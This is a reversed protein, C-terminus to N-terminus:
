IYLDKPFDDPIPACFEVIKKTEPHPFKLKYAHLLTRQHAEAGYTSDGSIPFGMESLHVRIQHLRGTEPTAEVLSYGNSHSVKKFKTKASKGGNSVRLMKMKDKPDRDLFNTVLRDQFKDESDQVVALYTKTIIKKEFLETFYKNHSKKKCFLLLGSTEFDIRHHLALYKEKHKGSIYRTMASLFNDRTSQLTANSSINAPKNGVLFIVEDHVVMSETIKITEKIPLSWSRLQAKTLSVSYFEDEKLLVEQEQVTQGKVKIRKQRILENFDKQSLSLSFDERLSNKLNNFLTDEKFTKLKLIKYTNKM